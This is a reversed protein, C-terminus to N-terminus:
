PELVIVDGLGAERLPQEIQALDGVILWITSNPDLHDRAANQVDTVTMTRWQAQRREIHDLPHGYRLISEYVGLVDDSKEFNGPLSRLIGERTREL